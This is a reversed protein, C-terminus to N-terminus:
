RDRDVVARGPDSALRIGLPLELRNAALLDADELLDRTTADVTVKGASMVVSRPCVELAFLLDHTIVLLPLELDSLLEILERRGAPDLGATPEDLVLVTPDMALVTALAVRRKEGASLRHPNRPALASAGVRELAGEVRRAVDARDYGRNAPGFAVDEAGTPMCLQADADQFVMGVRRRVEGLHQDDVPLGDVVVRGRSPLLIGNLHLALTTKGAGNAGLLAVRERGSLTLEVGDLAATGDPYRYSLESVDLVAPASPTM